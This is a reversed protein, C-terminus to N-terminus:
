KYNINKILFSDDLSDLGIGSTIYKDTQEDYQIYETGEQEKIKYGSNKLIECVESFSIKNPQKEM